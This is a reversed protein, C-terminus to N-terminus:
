SGFVLQDLLGGKCKSNINVNTNAFRAREHKSFTQFHGVLRRMNLATKPACM